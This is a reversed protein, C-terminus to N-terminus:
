RFYLYPDGPTESERIKKIKILPLEKNKYILSSITGDLEIWKNKSFKEVGSKECIFGMMVADAACCFVAMRGVGIQNKKFYDMTFSFGSIEIEKGKYDNINKYIDETQNIFNKENLIIKDELIEHFDITKQKIEKRSLKNSYGTMGTIGRTSAMDGGLPSLPVSVALLLPIFFIFIGYKFDSKETKIWKIIQYVTFIILIVLAFITFPFFYPHIIYAMRGTYFFNMIGTSITALIILKMLEYDM